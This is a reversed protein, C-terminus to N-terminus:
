ARAVCCLVCICVCVDTCHGCLNFCCFRPDFCYCAGRTSGSILCPFSMVITSLFGGGFLILSLTDREGRAHLVLVVYVCLLNGLPALPCQTSHETRRPTASRISRGKAVHICRLASFTCPLLLSGQSLGSQCWLLVLGLCCVCVCVCVCVRVYFQKSWLVGAFAQRQILKDGKSMSAEQVHSYFGDAENKREHLVEAFDDFPSPLTDDCMRVWVTLAEGPRVDKSFVAASKTGRKLGNVCGEDGSCLVCHLDGM